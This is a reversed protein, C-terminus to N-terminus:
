SSMYLLCGAAVCACGDWVGHVDVDFFLHFHAPKPVSSHTQIIPVFTFNHPINHQQSCHMQQSYHTATTLQLEPQSNHLALPTIFTNTHHKHPTCTTNTCTSNMHHKHPLTPPHSPATANHTTTRHRSHHTNSKM